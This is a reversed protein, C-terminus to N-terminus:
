EGQREQWNPDSENESTCTDTQPAYQQVFDAFGNDLMRGASGWPCDDSEPDDDSDREPPREIHRCVARLVELTSQLGRKEAATLKIVPPEGLVIRIEMRKM